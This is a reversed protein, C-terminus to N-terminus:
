QEKPHERHQRKERIVIAIAKLSRLTPLRIARREHNPERCRATRTWIPISGTTPVRRASGSPSVMQWLWLALLTPSGMDSSEQQLATALSQFDPEVSSPAVNAMDQLMNALESPAVLLDAFASFGDAGSGQLSQDDRGYQNHIAVGKPISSM